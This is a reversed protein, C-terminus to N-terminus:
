AVSQLLSPLANRLAINFANAAKNEDGSDEVSSDAMEENELGEMTNANNMDNSGGM